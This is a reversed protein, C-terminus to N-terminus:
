VMFIADNEEWHCWIGWHFGHVTSYDLCDSCEDCVEM